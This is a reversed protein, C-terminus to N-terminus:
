EDRKDLEFIDHLHRLAKPGDEERVICSIVIESTSINEINIRAEAFAEFMKSAIGAHTRMGLGIASVKSVGKDVEVSGIGLDVALRECVLRAEEADAVDTSFGLNAFEGNDYINQVIYDVLIRHRAVEAFIRAAVGPTNPVANLSVVALDEKLTVGEVCIAEMGATKEMIVTGKAESLSSRVHIPVNAKKAFEVARSHMVGAGVAAMELMVEYSLTSIKRAQPVVRPDATYVGEVDTYIECVEAGLVAALATATTDSAGRGLTTIEGAKDIGQFGAFVFFVAIRARRSSFIFFPVILEVGFMLVASLKQFWEPLQHAYWGIWTPLPQTEYHYFLAELNQWAADGSALKVLGSLFMLRFLLWRLLWIAAMSPRPEQEPSFRLRFPCLFIALFGTELLLSDWQFMLFTGGVTVLSLYLVWLLFFVWVSWVGLLAVLGLGVGFLCAAQLATDGASMWFVTPFGLFRWADTQSQVQELFLAAPWVGNEGLLGAVQAGLSAFAVAYILGLCRLFLRRTLFYSGAPPKAEWWRHTWRSIRDRNKSVWAYVWECVPAAGPVRRYGYLPWGWRPAFALARFVAEAGEVIEGSPLVLQVSANFREPPIEPFREAADQSPAFDVADRTRERWTDVMRRCFRCDGDYILLPKEVPIM